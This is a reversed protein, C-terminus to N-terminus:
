AFVDKIEDYEALFRLYTDADRKSFRAFEEYTRDVDLWHTFYEGDPFAVHAIPDPAVYELGYDSKLGLEDRTMLPNVQILTHGTSCSDIKYGPLLLEESAAGGGPIPRADLVLCEHGAKALYAATILSNHGGGAVVIDATQSM